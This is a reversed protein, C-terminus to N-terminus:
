KNEGHAVICAKIAESYKQEGIATTLNGVFIGIVIGVLILSFNM